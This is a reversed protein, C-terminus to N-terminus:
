TDLNEQVVDLAVYYDGDEEFMPVHNNKDRVQEMTTPRVGLLLMVLMAPNQVSYNTNRVYTVITDGYEDHATIKLGDAINPYKDWGSIDRYQLDVVQYWEVDQEENDSM